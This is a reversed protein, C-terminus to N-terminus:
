YNDYNNFKMNKKLKMNLCLSFIFLVNPKKMCM